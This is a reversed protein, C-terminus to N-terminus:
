VNFPLYQSYKEKLLKIGEDNEAINYNLKEKLYQHRAEAENLLDTWTKVYVNVNNQAIIHGFSRDSQQCEFKAYDDLDTALLVFTWSTKEKSFRVDNAVKQAYRRIQALEDTGIVKSPRKLEIVLNEFYGAKGRNFQKWLCIDPRDSELDGNGEVVSAEFDKRGLFNLYAKLVSKLTVDDAGYTYDDGFIWTENRVIKHLHKRELVKKKAEKDFLIIRLEYLVRLRDTIEKMTDIINELSTKELIESLEERKEKPLNIVETFIKQFNTADNELAEKILALTLKKSKRDQTGFTPLYENVQLTVIDFVQQTAAEVQNQPDGAYPYIEERKLQEIFEKANKHLRERLYVRALQKATATASRLLEDLDGLSLSGSKHLLEIYDSMLYLTINASTKLNSNGESYTIGSYNCYYIKRDCPIQWEIIKLKFNREGGHQDVLTFDHEQSEKVWKNFDLIEGNIVIRFNPYNAHYLAFKEELSRVSTKGFLNSTAAPNIKNVTVRVGTSQNIKAPNPDTIEPHRLDERNLIADFTKLRGGEQYTSRYVVEDGLAFAKFRGRGEKGHLLRNGPSQVSLKKSSGGLKRFVEEADRYSIGHGNDSIDILEIGGLQNEKYDIHVSTADADLSNWILETLANIGSARTLSELFDKEVRLDLKRISM